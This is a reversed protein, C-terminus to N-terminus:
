RRHVEIEIIKEAFGIFVQSQKFPSWWLSKPNSKFKLLPPVLGGGVIFGVLLFNTYLIALLLKSCHSAKARLTLAM